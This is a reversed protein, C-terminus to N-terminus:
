DLRNAVAGDTTMGSWRAVASLVATLDDYDWEPGTLPLSSVGQSVEPEFGSGLDRVLVASIEWQGLVQRVHLNLSLM